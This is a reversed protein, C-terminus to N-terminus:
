DHTSAPLYYLLHLVVTQRKKLLFDLHSDQWVAQSQAKLIIIGGM